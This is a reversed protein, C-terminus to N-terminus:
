FNLFILHLLKYKLLKIWKLLWVEVPLCLMVM